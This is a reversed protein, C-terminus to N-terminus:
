VNLKLSGTLVPERKQTILDKAHGGLESSHSLTRQMGALSAQASMRPCVSMERDRQFIYAVKKM